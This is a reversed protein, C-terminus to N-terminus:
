LLLENKGGEYLITLFFLGEEDLDQDCKKGANTATKECSCKTRRNGDNRSPVSPPPECQFLSFTYYNCAQNNKGFHRMTVYLFNLAHFISKVCKRGRLRKATSEGFTHTLSLPSKQSGTWWNYVM